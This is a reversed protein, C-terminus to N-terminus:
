HVTIRGTMGPHLTCEYRYTGAKRFRVVYKGSARARSGKFRLAGRSTVNHRTIGDRWRFTVNAGRSVTLRKPSFRVDKLVVTKSAADTTAVHGALLAILVVSPVLLRSLRRDM